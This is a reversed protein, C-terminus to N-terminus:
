NKVLFRAPNVNKGNKLVEIHVHPGTSRGSDGMIGVSDGKQIVMGESVLLERHHAYRSVYGNAHDVEVMKGYGQREGAYVVIGGALSKVISKKNRSTIDVGAHWAKVGKFPDVRQGYPSSTWGKDVPYGGVDSNEKVRQEFLVSDLITLETERRDLLQTFSDLDDQLQTWSSEEKGEYMLGGVALPVSFDFESEDLGSIDALRGGLSELKLLRAKLDALHIKVVDGQSSTRDKLGHLIQTQEDINAQWKNFVDENVASAEEIISGLFILAFSCFGVFTALLVYTSNRSLEISRSHGKSRVLILKM